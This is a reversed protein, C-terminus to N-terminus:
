PVVFLALSFVIPLRQSSIAERALNLRYKTKIATFVYEKFASICSANSSIELVSHVEFPHGFTYVMETTHDAEKWEPFVRTFRAKQSFRYM